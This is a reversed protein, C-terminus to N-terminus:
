LAYDGFLFLKLFLPVSKQDPHKFDLDDVGEVHIANREHSCAEAKTDHHKESRLFRHIQTDGWKEKQSGECTEVVIMDTLISDIAIDVVNKM